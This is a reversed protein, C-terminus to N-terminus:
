DNKTMRERMEQMQKLMRKKNCTAAALRLLVTTYSKHPPPNVMHPNAIIIKKEPAFLMAMWTMGFDFVSGESESSGDPRHKWWVHVEDAKVIGARNTKIIHLGTPDDQKTDRHPWHVKYGAAELSKVYQKQLEVEAESAQRVVCIFFVRKKM